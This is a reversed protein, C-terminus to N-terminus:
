KIESEVLAEQIIKNINGGKLSRRTEKMKKQNIKGKDDIARLIALKSDSSIKGLDVLPQLLNGLKDKDYISEKCRQKLQEFLENESEEIRKKLNKLSQLEKQVKGPVLEKEESLAKEVANIKRYNNESDIMFKFNSLDVGGSERIAAMLDLYSAVVIWLREEDSLEGFHKEYTKFSVSSFQHAIEHKKVAKVLIEPIDIDSQSSYEKIKEAGEEGHNKVGKNKNKQFYSIGSIKESEYFNKMAMPSGSTGEPLKSQWQEWTLVDEEGNEYQITLCNSKAIDHLFTYMQLSKNERNAVDKMFPHINEPVDPHFDGKEMDSLTQLMKEIHTDMLVGEMHFKGIQPTDFSKKIESRLDSLNEGEFLEDVHTSLKRVRDPRTAEELSTEMIPSIEEASRESPDDIVEM